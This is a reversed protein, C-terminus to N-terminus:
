VHKSILYKAIYEAFLELDDIDNQLHSYLKESDIDTYIHVLVNRFEAALALKEDLAMPFINHQGLILVAERCTELCMLRESSIIM